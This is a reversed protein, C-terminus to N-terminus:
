FKKCNLWLRIELQPKLSYKKAVRPHSTAAAGLRVWEPGCAGGRLRPQVRSPRTCGGIAQHSAVVVGVTGVGVLM